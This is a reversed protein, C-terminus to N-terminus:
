KHRATRPCCMTTNMGTTTAFDLPLFQVLQQITLPTVGSECDWVAAAILQTCMSCCHHEHLKQRLHRRAVLAIRRVPTGTLPHVVRLKSDIDRQRMTTCRVTSGDRTLAFDANGCMDPMEYAGRGSGGRAWTFVVKDTEGPQAGGALLVSKLWAYVQARSCRNRSSRSRALMQMYQKYQQFETRQEAATPPVTRPELQAAAIVSPKLELPTHAQTGFCRFVALALVSDLESQILPDCGVAGHVSADDDDEDDLHQLGFQM